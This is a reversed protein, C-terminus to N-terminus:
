LRSSLSEELAQSTSPSGRHHRPLRHNRGARQPPGPKSLVEGWISPVMGIQLPISGSLPSLRTHIAAEEHLPRRQHSQGAGRRRDHVNLSMTGVVEDARFDACANTRRASTPSVLEDTRWLM